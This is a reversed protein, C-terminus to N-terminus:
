DISVARVSSGDQRRAVLNVLRGSQGDHLAPEVVKVGFVLLYIYVVYSSIIYFYSLLSMSFPNVFTTYILRRKM